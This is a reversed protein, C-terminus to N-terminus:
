GKARSFTKADNLENNRNEVIFFEAAIEGAGSAIIYEIYVVLGAGFLVCFRSNSVFVYQYYKTALRINGERTPPWLLLFSFPSPAHFYAVYTIHSIHVHHSHFM